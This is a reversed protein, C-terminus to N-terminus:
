ALGVCKWFHNGAFCTPFVWISRHHVANLHLQTDALLPYCSNDERGVGCEQKSPFKWCHQVINWCLSHFIEVAFIFLMIEKGEGFRAILRSITRRMARIWFSNNISFKSLPRSLNHVLNHSHLINGMCPDVNFILRFFKGAKIWLGFLSGFTTGM